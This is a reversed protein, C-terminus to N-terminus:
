HQAGLHSRLAYTNCPIYCNANYPLVFCPLIQCVVWMHHGLQMQQQFLRWSETTNRNHNCTITLVFDQNAACSPVILLQELLVRSRLASQTVHQYSCSQLCVLMCICVKIVLDAIALFCLSLCQCTPCLRKPCLTLLCSNSKSVM